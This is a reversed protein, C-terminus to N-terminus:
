KNITPLIVAILEDTYGQKKLEAIDQAKRREVEMKLKDPFVFPELVEQQKPTHKIIREKVERHAKLWWRIVLISLTICFFADM